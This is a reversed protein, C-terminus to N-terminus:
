IENRLEVIRMIEGKGRSLWNVRSDLLLDTHALKMKKMNLINKFKIGM